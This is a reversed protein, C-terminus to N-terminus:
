GYSRTVRVIIKRKPGGDKEYAKGYPPGNVEKVPVYFIEPTLGFHLTIDMWSKGDIRLNIIAQPTVNARKAIFLVVPIEDDPVKREKIILVERQPVKYYDGVSLYFGELGDDGISIGFDIGAEAFGVLSCILILFLTIRFARSRM